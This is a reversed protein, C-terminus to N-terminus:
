FRLVCPCEEQFPTPSAADLTKGHEELEHLYQLTDARYVGDELGRFAARDRAVRRFESNRWTDRLDHLWKDYEM